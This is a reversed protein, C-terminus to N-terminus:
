SPPQGGDGSGHDPRSATEIEITSGSSAFRKGLAEKTAVSFSAGAASSRRAPPMPRDFRTALGQDNWIILERRQAEIEWGLTHAWGFGLGVDRAHM